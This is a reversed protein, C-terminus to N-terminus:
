ATSQALPPAVWVHKLDARHLLSLFDPQAQPQGTAVSAFFMCYPHHNIVRVRVAVGCKLPSEANVDFTGKAM